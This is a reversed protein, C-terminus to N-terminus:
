GISVYRPQLFLGFLFLIYWPSILLLQNKMGKSRKAMENSTNALIAKYSSMYAVNQEKRARLRLATDKRYQTGYLVTVM